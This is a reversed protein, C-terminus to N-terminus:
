STTKKVLPENSPIMWFYTAATRPYPSDDRVLRPDGLPNARVFILRWGGYWYFVLFIM